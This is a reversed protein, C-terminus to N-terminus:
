GPRTDTMTGLLHKFAIENAQEWAASPAYVIIELLRDKNPVFTVEFTIKDGNAHTCEGLRSEWQGSMTDMREGSGFACETLGLPALREVSWSGLLQVPDAIEDKVILQMGTLEDASRFWLGAEQETAQPELWDHVYMTQLGIADDAHMRWVEVGELLAQFVPQLAEWQETPAFWMVELVDEARRLYAVQATVGGGQAIKTPADIRAITVPPGDNVTEAAFSVIGLIGIDATGWTNLLADPNGTLGIQFTVGLPRDPDKVFEGEGFTLPSAGDWDGPFAFSLETRTSATTSWNSALSPTPGPPETPALTSPLSPETSSPGPTAPQSTPAATAGPQSQGCAALALTLMTLAHIPKVIPVGKKDPKATYDSGHYAGSM